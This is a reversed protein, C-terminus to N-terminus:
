EVWLKKIHKVTLNGTLYKAVVDNYKKDNNIAKKLKTKFFDKNSIPEKGQLLLRIWNRMKEEGIEKEISFLIATQYDYAYTERDNTDESKYFDLMAKFKFSPDEFWEIAKIIENKTFDMDKNQSVYKYALFQAFGEDILSELYSNSRKFNGFYYHSIEHVITNLSSNNLSKLTTHLDNPPDGVVTIAPYSFFAFGYKQATVGGNIWVLKDQYKINTYDSMYDFIQNNLLDIEKLERETFNSNLLYTTASEQINYNGVFLLPERAVDSKFNISNGKIPKVGNMYMTKCDDCDITLNYKLQDYQLKNIPDYITPYWASQLGDVRLNNKVFAVNGRWDENQMKSWVTDKVVPFKGVYRLRINNPYFKEGKTKSPIYYSVTEDSQISDTLDRNYGVLFADPNEVEINLINMGKNLRILYGKPLVLEKLQLDCEFTGNQVSIKVNGSLTPIKAQGFAFNGLLFSLIIFFKLNNMENLNIETM